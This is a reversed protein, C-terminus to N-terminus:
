QVRFSGACRTRVRESRKLNEMLNSGSCEARYEARVVCAVRTGDGDLEEREIQRRFAHM